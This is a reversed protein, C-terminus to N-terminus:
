APEEDGPDQSEEGAADAERRAIQTPTLSGTRRLLELALQEPTARALADAVDDYDAAVELQESPWAADPRMERLQTWDGDTEPWLARVILRLRDGRVPGGAEVKDWTAANVEAKIYAARKTGFRRSREREVLSGLLAREKESM